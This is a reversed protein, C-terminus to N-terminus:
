RDSETPETAGAFRDSMGALRIAERLENSAGAIHLMKGREGLAESLAALIQLASLDMARVEEGCVHVDQGLQALHAAEGHLHAAAFVDADGVLHLEQRGDAAQLAYISTRDSEM